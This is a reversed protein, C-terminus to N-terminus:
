ARLRRKVIPFLIATGLLQLIVMQDEIVRYAREMDLLTTGMFALMLLVASIMASAKLTDKLSVNQHPNAERQKVAKWLSIKGFIVVLVAFIVGLPVSVWLSSPGSEGYYLIAVMFGFLIAGITALYLARKTM